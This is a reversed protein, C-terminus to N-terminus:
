DLAPFGAPFGSLLGRMPKETRPSGPVLQSPKRGLDTGYVYDTTVPRYVCGAMSQQAVKQSGASLPWSDFGARKIMREFQTRLNANQQRYKSIVHVTRDEAIEKADELLQRLEPFIPVMRFPKGQKKTKPSTVRMKGGCELRTMSALADFFELTINIHPLLRRWVVCPM